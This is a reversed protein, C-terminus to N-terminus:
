PGVMGRVWRAVGVNGKEGGERWGRVPPKIRRGRM